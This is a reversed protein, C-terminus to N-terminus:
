GPQTVAYSGRAVVVWLLWVLPVLAVAFSSLFLLRAVHNKIRRAVSVRRLTAAKVPRDLKASTM